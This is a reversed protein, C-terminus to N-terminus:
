RFVLCIRYRSAWALFILPLVVYLMSVLTDTITGRLLIVVFPLGLSYVLMANINSPHIIYWRWVAALFAGILFMGLSVGVFGSDFYLPGLVSYAAGARSLSFHRPWLMTQLTNNLGLPKAGGPWLEHPVMRVFIDTVVGFPRYGTKEPVVLLENTITDFMEDDSQNVIKDFQDVPSSLTMVLASFYDTRATTSATRVAGLWAIAALGLYLFLLITLMSPRRARFLYLLIPIAMVLPLMVSRTGRAGYFVFVPLAVFFAYWYWKKQETIKGVAIFILASPMWFMIGQYFYGSSNLFVDNNGAARGKLLTILLGLGGGLSLFLAFLVCGIMFFVWAARIAFDTRFEGPAPFRKAMYGVFPSHYGPQFAAIGVLVVMLALNFTDMIPYGLHMMRGTALDGLPRAIFMMGLAVNAIILPEFLDLTGKILRLGFPLMLMMVIALILTGRLGIGAISITVSALAAFALILGLMRVFPRYPSM